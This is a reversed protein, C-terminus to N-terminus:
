VITYGGDVKLSHGLIYSADDSALFLVVNAVEEATAIRGMPHLAVGRAVFEPNHKEVQEFLPTRIGAPSVANIRIGSKAFELAVSRTLGLAGHKSAVYFPNGVAGVQDTISTVNVIAGRSKPLMARIQAQMCLWVGRLNVDIVRRFAEDDAELFATPMQEIGANNIAIDLGGFSATTRDVMERVSEPSAVDVHLALASGGAARILALSQANGDDNIDALAVSAGETAFMQAVTRGLGSGSGTVIVSKQHFRAM